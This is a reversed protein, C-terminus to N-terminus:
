SGRWYELLNPLAPSLDIGEEKIIRDIEFKNSDEVGNKDLIGNKYVSSKPGSIRWKVAVAKYLYSNASTAGTRDTETIINENIKKVFYREVFGDKYNQDSPLKKYKSVNSANRIETFVGYSTSLKENYIM